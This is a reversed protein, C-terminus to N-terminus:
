PDRAKIETAQKLLDGQEVAVPGAPLSDLMGSVLHAIRGNRTDVSHAVANLLMNVPDIQWQRHASRWQEAQWLTQGTRADILRLSCSVVVADFLVQNVRASQDIQGMLLADAQLQQGLRTPSIGALLGPITVGLRKMVQDVHQEAVKVYGKSALRAYVQQRLMDAGGEELSFNDMPLVAITRPRLAAFQPHVQSAEEPPASVPQAPVPPASVPQAAACRLALGLGAVVALWAVASRM